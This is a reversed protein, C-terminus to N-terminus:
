PLSSSRHQRHYKEHAHGMERCYRGQKPEYYEPVIENELMEYITAADLENQMDQNEYAREESLAWGADSRYGEAWWGDLVSFNIGGNMTAKMGSTGSAELPRTPTNLWVDVGKVLASALDMDYDELFIVKGIFEPRGSVEMIHKILAQGGQDAPHAKGAFLFQVPYNPNNVIRALRDIDTFLLQARKYTAFRRAFGFLLADENLANVTQMIKQPSEHRLQMNKELRVKLLDILNRKQQRKIKVLDADKVQKIKAWINPDSQQQM